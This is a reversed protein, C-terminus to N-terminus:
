FKWDTGLRLHPYAYDSGLHCYFGLSLGGYAKLPNTSQPAFRYAVAGGVTYFDNLAAEQVFHTHIGWAQVAWRGGVPVDVKLGTKLIQQSLDSEYDGIAGTEYVSIHNGLTLKCVRFDRSLASSLALQGVLAGEALDSSVGIEAGGSPTVQWAWLANTDLTLLRVPVGFILGSRYISAGEIETYNLPVNVALGVRRSLPFRYSLPLTYSTGRFSDARITGVDPALRLATEMKGTADREMGYLVFEEFAQEALLATTSAPNGDTVSVLSSRTQNPLFGAQRRVDRQARDAIRGRQSNTISYGGPGSLVYTTANSSSSTTLNFTLPRNREAYHLAIQYNSAGAFPQFAGRGLIADDLLTQLRNAGASVTTPGTATIQFLAAHACIQIGFCAGVIMPFVLVKRKMANLQAAAARGPSTNPATRLVMRLIEVRGKKM